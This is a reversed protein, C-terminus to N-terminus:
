CLIVHKKNIKIKKVKNFINFRICKIILSDNFFCHDVNLVSIGNFIFPCVWCKTEFEDRVHIM